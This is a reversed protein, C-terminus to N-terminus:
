LIDTQNSVFFMEGETVSKTHAMKWSYNVALFNRIM